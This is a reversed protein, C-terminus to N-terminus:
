RVVKLQIEFSSEPKKLNAWLKIMNAATTVRTVCAWAEIQAINTAVDTGLVIDIMPTDTALIGNVTVNQYYGGYEDDVTWSTSINATYLATSAAGLNKRAEDATKAGTGGGEVSVTKELKDNVGKFLADAADWNDNFDNPKVYENPQPKKFKYNETLVPM